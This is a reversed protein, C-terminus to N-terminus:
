QEVWGNETNTFKAVDYFDVEDGMNCKVIQMQMSPIFEPSEDYTKFSEFFSGMGSKNVYMYCDKKVEITGKYKISYMERGFLESEQANVKEISLLELSGLSEALVRNSLTEEVTSIDPKSSCSGFLLVLALLVITYAPKNKM